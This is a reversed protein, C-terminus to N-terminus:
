GERNLRKYRELWGPKKKDTSLQVLEARSPCKPCFTYPKARCESVHTPTYFDPSGAGDAQQWRPCMVWDDLPEEEFILEFTRHPCTHCAAYPRILCVARDQHKWVEPDELDPACWVKKGEAIEGTRAQRDLLEESSAADLTDPNLLRM